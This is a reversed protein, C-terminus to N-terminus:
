TTEFKRVLDMIAKISFPKNLVDEAGLNLLENRNHQFGTLFVFHSSHLLNNKRLQSLLYPGDGDPMSVDCLILDFQTDSIVKLAHNGSIATQVDYNNIKLLRSALNLFDPDDDIFLIKSIKKM